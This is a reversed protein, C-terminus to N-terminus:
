VNPITQTWKIDDRRVDFEGKETIITCIGIVVNAPTTYVDKIYLNGHTLHNYSGVYSIM